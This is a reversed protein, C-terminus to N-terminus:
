PNTTPAWQDANGAYLAQQLRALDGREAFKRLSRNFAERLEDARADDKRFLMHLPENSLSRPHHTIQARAEASLLRQLMAYGVARDQPHLDIRGLDLLRFSTDEKGNQFIQLKGARHAEDFQPGYAYGLTTGIRFKQLDEIQQWDFDLEKRHFLVVEGRVMPASCDSFARRPATCIYPMVADLSGQQLKLVNRDWPYFEFKAQYGADAFVARVLRAMAGKDSRQQDVYPAWEGTGIRVVQEALALPSFAIALAALLRALSFRYVVLDVENRGVFAGDGLNTIALKAM